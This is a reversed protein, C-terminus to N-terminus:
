SSGDLLYLEGEPAVHARGGSDVELVVVPAGKPLTRSEASVCLLERQRGRV